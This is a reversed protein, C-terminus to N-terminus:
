QLKTIHSAADFLNACIASATSFDQAATYPSPVAIAYCGAARAAKIGNASDELVVAQEGSIGLRDLTRHYIEPSPKGAAVEESSQLISFFHRINLNDLALDLFPRINGTAVALEIEGHFQHLIQYLGPMAPTEVNLIEMMRQDRLSLLQEAAVDIGLMAAFLTMSELPKRGMLQGLEQDSLTKGYAAALEREVQFYVRESDIMLGDMDFIIAKFRQM